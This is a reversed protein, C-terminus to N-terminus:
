EVSLTAARGLRARAQRWWRIVHRGTCEACRAAEKVCVTGVNV